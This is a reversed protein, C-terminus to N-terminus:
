NLEPEECDCNEQWCLKQTYEVGKNTIGSHIWKGYHEKIEHGCNECKM